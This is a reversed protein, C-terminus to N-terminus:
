RVLVDVASAAPDFPWMDGCFHRVKLRMVGCVEDRYLSMVDGLFIRGNQNLVVQANRPDEKLGFKGFQLKRTMKM